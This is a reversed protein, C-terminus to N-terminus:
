KKSFSLTTTTSDKYITDQNRGIVLKLSGVITDNKISVYYKDNPDFSRWAYEFTNTYLKYNENRLTDTKNQGTSHVRYTITAKPTQILVKYFHRYEVSREKQCSFLILGLLLLKLKM